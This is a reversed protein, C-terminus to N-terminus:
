TGRKVYITYGYMGLPLREFHRQDLEMDKVFYIQQGPRMERIAQVFNHYSQNEVIPPSSIVPLALACSLFAEAIV